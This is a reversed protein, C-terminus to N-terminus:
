GLRKPLLLSIVKMTEGHTHFISYSLVEHKAKEYRLLRLAKIPKLVPRPQSFQVQPFLGGHINSITSLSM